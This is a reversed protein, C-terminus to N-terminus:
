ISLLPARTVSFHASGSKFMASYAGGYRDQGRPGAGCECALEAEELRIDTGQTALVRQLPDGPNTQKSRMHEVGDLM